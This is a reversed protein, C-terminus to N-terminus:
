CCYLLIIKWWWKSKYLFQLPYILELFNFLRTYMLSEMIKDKNSLLSIPKYNLCELKSCKRKKTHLPRIKRTTLIWPFIGSCSQKFLIAQQGSLDENFLRLIKQPLSNPRESKYINLSTFLNSVELIIQWLYLSNNM